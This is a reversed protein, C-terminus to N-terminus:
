PPVVVIDLSSLRVAALTIGSASATAACTLSPSVSASSPKV